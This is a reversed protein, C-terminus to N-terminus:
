CFVLLFGCCGHMNCLSPHLFDFLDLLLRVKFKLTGTQKNIQIHFHKIVVNTEAGCLLNQSKVGNECYHIIRRSVSLIIPFLDHSKWKVRIQHSGKLQTSITKTQVTSSVESLSTISSPHIIQLSPIIPKNEKHEARSPTSTGM